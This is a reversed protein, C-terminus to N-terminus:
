LSGGTWMEELEISGDKVKRARTEPAVVVKMMGAVVAAERRLDTRWEQRSGMENVRDRLEALEM